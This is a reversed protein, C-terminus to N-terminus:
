EYKESEKLMKQKNDKIEKKNKFYYVMVGFAFTFISVIMIFTIISIILEINTM